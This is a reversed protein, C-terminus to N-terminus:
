GAGVQVPAGVPADSRHELLDTAAHVFADLRDPSSKSGPLYTRMQDELKAFSGLVRGREQEWLASIPEARLYKGKKAHVKTVPVYEDHTRINAEVLDGGNNVEAVIRDAGWKVYARLAERAWESPTFQGSVDDLIWLNGRDDMGVVVIGTEDADEGSSVAPDIGVVVRVLQVREFERLTARSGDLMSLNWLAGPIDTLLEALLEQRGLRTGEYKEKLKKLANEALNAANDYTTGQSLVVDRGVDRVLKIILSNPRPTTTVIARPPSGDVQKLRLGFMLQDWAEEPYRWSGAEDCWAMHFQPGRLTEPKDASFAQFQTGNYLVLELTSRNYKRICVAPIVGKLGSVGEFCTDRLDRFTPALVAVRSNPYKLAYAATEEAGTRTKGFGRGAM